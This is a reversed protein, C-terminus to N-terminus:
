VVEVSAALSRSIRARSAQDYVERPIHLRISMGRAAAQESIIRIHSTDHDALTFLHALSPPLTHFARAVQSEFTSPPRGSLFASSIRCLARSFPDPVGTLPTFRRKLSPTSRYRYLHHFRPVPALQNMMAVLRRTDPELPSFSILNPGSILLVSFEERSSMRTAIASVAAGKLRAFAEPSFPLTADPLDIILITGHEARGMYERVYLTDYKASLKWDIKKLDDGPLYERFSRVDPSALATVAATEKEGYTDRGALEYEASPLVVLSPATADTTRCVLETSFFPDSFSLCIGMFPHEGPTLPALTYGLRCASGGNRVPATNKGSSPVTGHPLLDTIGASFGPPVTVRVRTEVTVSSGQRVLLASLARHIGLSGAASSLASLFLTARAALFMVLGGSAIAAPISDFFFAFLSLVVALAAIGRSCRSFKM